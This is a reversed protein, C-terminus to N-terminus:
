TSAAGPQEDEAFYRRDARLPSTAPVFLIDGQALAGDVPRHWLGLVDYPEFGRTKMFAIVDSALPVTDSFAFFSVEVVVARAVALCRTAGSLAALEAGQLDLKILDPGALRTDAVLQDLTTMTRRVQVAAHGVKWGLSSQDGHDFFEVDRAADGLLQRAITVNGLEAKARELESQADDRPEVALIHAGPWISRAMRTWDGVAAGGDVITRVDLGRAKAAALKYGPVAFTGPPRSLIMDRKLLWRKILSRLSM